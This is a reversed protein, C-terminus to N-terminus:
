QSRNKELFVELCSRDPLCNVWRMGGPADIVVIRSNSTAGRYVQFEDSNRIALMLFLLGIAVFLLILVQLVLWCMLRDPLLVIERLLPYVPDRHHLGAAKLKNDLCALRRRCHWWDALWTM